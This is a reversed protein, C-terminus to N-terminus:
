LDEYKKFENLLKIGEKLGDCDGDKIGRFGHYLPVVINVGEANPFKTKDKAWKLYLDKTVEQIIARSLQFYKLEREDSSERLKSQITCVKLFVKNLELLKDVANSSHYFEEMSENKIHSAFDRFAPSIRYLVMIAGPVGLEAPKAYREQLESDSLKRKNQIKNLWMVSLVCSVGHNYQDCGKKAYKFAKEIDEKQDALYWLKDFCDNGSDCKVETSEIAFSIVPFLALAIISPIKLM